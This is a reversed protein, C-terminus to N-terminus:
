DKPRLLRLGNFIVVLSAGMDAAIAMWLTAAGALALTIFLAKIAVSFIINQKIVRLTRRSHRILWALKRLDDSMLAIDATEIAADTGAVGMAVGVSAAAMAPADNIGDGVMAVQRYRGVLSEVERVKDEPLLGARYADIGISDAVAQATGEHDGTLMVVKDVGSRKLGEVASQSEPRLADAVSILGCVHRDNGVIIVSHGDDELGLATQHLEETEEAKEHLFRHSGIWFLRGDILGEAGKGRIAKCNEAPQFPIGEEEARQQIARALPHDSQAELSAARQLLDERSHGNLPIVRQVVPAGRTLTGTKDMAVVKIRAPSELYVGGKILIGNHAASSLGAVISVPTSIVLACPCAIVLIVLGQYISSLWPWGFLLPPLLAIALALMMMIPTYRRAFSEVWQEAKARRSQAEEVLQIIRALTSDEAARTSKFAIAGDGNITGAFLEDGEEKEVPMSEGTIPSQDVVTRGETVIGDLPIKEGPRVLVTAGVPVQSVPKEEINGDTPCIYRAVAPTLDMLAGIARRARGVSWSELLLALAFLFSVTGAEFLEGIVIAGLVAVTMLLNMDPRLNRAALLAKPFVFWGGALIAMGYLLISLFPLSTDPIGGWLAGEIGHQHWHALFGAILCGASTLVLMLRGRQSWFTVTGGAQGVYDQWPIAQMGTGAVARIVESEAPLDGERELIMKGNLLDFSLREEDGALSSLESKLIAIEEACDMGRIKFSLRTM